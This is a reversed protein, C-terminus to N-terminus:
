EFVEAKLVKPATEAIARVAPRLFPRAAMVATGFELHVGYEAGVTVSWSRAAERQHTISNKLKGTQVAPPEGPRSADPATRSMHDKAYGDVDGALKGMVKDTIGPTKRELEKLRRMDLEIRIASKPM